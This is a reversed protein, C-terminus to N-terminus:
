PPAPRPSPPPPPPRREEADLRTLAEALLELFRERGHNRVVYDRGAERMAAAAAADAAVLALATAMETANFSNLVLGGQSEGILEEPGGCPTTVVPLGAALAEAAVLGFGEQRSPLVLIAARRLEPAIDAVPG